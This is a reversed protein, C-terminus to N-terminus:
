VSPNLPPLPVRINLVTTMVDRHLLTPRLLLLDYYGPCAFVTECASVQRLTMRGPTGAAPTSRRAILLTTM